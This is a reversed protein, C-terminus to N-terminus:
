IWPSGQLTCIKLYGAVDSKEAVFPYINGTEGATVEGASPFGGLYLVQTGTVPINVVDISEEGGTLPTATDVGMALSNEFMGESIYISPAYVQDIVGSCEGQPCEVPLVGSLEAWRGNEQIGGTGVM